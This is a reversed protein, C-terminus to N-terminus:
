EGAAIPTTYPRARSSVETGAQELGPRVANPHVDAIAAPGRIVVRAGYWFFALLLLNYVLAFMLLSTLVAGPALPAVADATRPDDAPTLPSSTTTSPTSM